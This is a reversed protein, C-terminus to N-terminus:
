IEVIGSEKVWGTISNDKIKYWGNQKDAIFVEVGKSLEKQIAFEENRGIYVAENNNTIIGSRIQKQEFHIYLAMTLTIIMTGLIILVFLYRFGFKWIFYFFLIVLVLFIVQWFFLPIYDIYFIIYRKIKQVISDSEYIQLRRRVKDIHEQAKEFWIRNANKQSRKWYVLADIINDLQYATNGMNYWVAYGKHAISDYKKLAEQYKEAYYLENAELFLEQNNPSVISFGYIITGIFLFLKKM